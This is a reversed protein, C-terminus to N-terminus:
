TADPAPQTRELVGLFADLGEPDFQRERGARMEEVARDLPWAPKYPREHMLADFVDAITTIRGFLPIESGRLGGYGNGDWREHHAYAITEAARLLPSQSGSLLQGGITTHMRVIAFEDETLPGPKLLITDPVGIKGVDHLGAARGLLEVDHEPLGLEAAITAATQGVRVTHQGTEDDRYEAALALREFTEIHAAELERTRERVREELLERDHEIQQYLFRMQLLNRTRLVVEDVELPKVLFDTAGAALARSKADHTADATLVICPVASAHVDLSRLRDMLDLGDLRPMHLDLLMLEPRHREYLEIAELPDTTTIVNTYGVGRLVADLLRVNIEEDDVVLIPVDRLHDEVAAGAGRARFDVPGPSAVAADEFRIM